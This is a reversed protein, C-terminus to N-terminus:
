VSEQSPPKQVRSLTSNSCVNPLNDAVSRTERVVRLENELEEEMTTLYAAVYSRCSKQFEDPYYGLEHHVHEEWALLLGLLYRCHESLHM